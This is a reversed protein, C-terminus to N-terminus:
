YTKKKAGSVEALEALRGKTEESIMNNAGSNKKSMKRTDASRTLLDENTKTEAQRSATEIMIQIEEEGYKAMYAVKAAEPKLTGDKNFFLSMVGQSGGTFM